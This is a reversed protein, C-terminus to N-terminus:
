YNGERLYYNLEIKNKMLRLDPDTEIVIKVQNLLIQSTFTQIGTAIVSTNRSLSQNLSNYCYQITSANVTTLILCNVTKSASVTQRIDSDFQTSIETVSFQNNVQSQEESYFKLGSVFITTLGAGIISFMLIGIILEILTFGKKSLNQPMYPRM